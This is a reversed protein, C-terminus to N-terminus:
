RYGPNKPEGLGKKLRRAKPSGLATPMTPNKPQGLGKEKKKRKEYASLPQWERESKAQSNALAKLHRPQMCRRAKRRVLSRKMLPKTEMQLDTKALNEEKMKLEMVM